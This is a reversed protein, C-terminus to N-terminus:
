KARDMVAYIYGMTHRKEGDVLRLVEVLPGFVKLIYVISTWFIPMLIIATARKGAAEKAWKSSTWDKLHVNKKKKKLNTKQKHM